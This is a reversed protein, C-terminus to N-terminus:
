PTTHSTFKGPLTRSVEAGDILMKTNLVCRDLYARGDKKLEVFVEKSETSKLDASSEIRCVGLDTCGRKRQLFVLSVKSRNVCEMTVISVPALTPQKANTRVELTLGISQVFERGDLERKLLEVVTRYGRATKLATQRAESLLRYATNRAAVQAPLDGAIAATELTERLQRARQADFGGLTVADVIFAEVKSVSEWNKADARDQPKSFTGDVFEVFRRSPYDDAIRFVNRIAADDLKGPVLGISELQKATLESQTALRDIMAPTLELGPENASMAIPSVKVDPSDSKVQASAVPALICLLLALFGGAARVGMVTANSM